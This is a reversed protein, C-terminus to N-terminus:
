SSIASNTQIGRALSLIEVSAMREEGLESDFEKYVDWFARMEDISYADEASVCMRSKLEEDCKNLAKMVSETSFDGDLQQLFLESLYM